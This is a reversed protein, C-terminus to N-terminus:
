FYGNLFVELQIARKEELKLDRGLSESVEKVEQEYEDYAQEDFKNVGVKLSEANVPEFLELGMLASFRMKEAADAEEDSLSRLNKKKYFSLIHPNLTEAIISQAEAGWIQAKSRPIFRRTKRKVSDRSNVPRGAPKALKTPSTGSDDPAPESGDDSPEVNDEEPDPDPFTLGIQDPTIRETEVLTRELKDLIQPDHWPGSKPTRKFNSRSKAERNLRSTEIEPNAGFKHQIWEDSILSRDALEIWLKKEAEEDGLNIEDFDIVAPKGFGMAKRFIEIEQNWFEVVKNRGYILRKVLTKLSILNNTTGSGGIVSGTLTPPIGLGVYIANLCPKYKEEGFIWNNDNKTEVLDIDKFWVLERMGTGPNASLASKLKAMTAENPVLKLAPDLSGLRWVRVPSAATELATFDAIRNMQLQYIDRLISYIIPTSWVEWDEKKFHFDLTNEPDLPKVKNQNFGFNIYSQDGEVLEFLNFKDNYNEPVFMEYTVPKGEIIAKEGNKSRVYAPNLFTYKTPVRYSRTDISEFNYDEAGQSQRLEKRNKKTLKGWHRSVLVVGFKYLSNLFRETRDLGGIKAFWARYMKQHYKNPHNLKIGASCFDTMLDITNRIIGEQKYVKEVEVMLDHHEVPLANHPRLYDYSEQTFPARMTTSPESNWPTTCGGKDVCGAVSNMAESFGGPQDAKAFDDTIVTYAPGDQHTRRPFKPQIQAALQEQTNM